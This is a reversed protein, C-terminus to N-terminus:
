LHATEHQCGGQRNGHNPNGTQEPDFRLAAVFNSAYM